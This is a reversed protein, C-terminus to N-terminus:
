AKTKTTRKLKTFSVFIFWTASNPPVRPSKIPKLKMDKKSAATDIREKIFVTQLFSKCGFLSYDTTDLLMLKIASLRFVEITNFHFTFYFEDSNSGFYRTNKEKLKKEVVM